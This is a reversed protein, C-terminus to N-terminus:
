LTDVIARWKLLWNQAGSVLTGSDLYEGSALAILDLEAIDSWQQLLARAAPDALWPELFGPKQSGQGPSALVRM